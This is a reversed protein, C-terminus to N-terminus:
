TSQSCSQLMMKANKLYKQKLSINTFNAKKYVSIAEEYCTRAKELMDQKKYAIGVNYYLHGLEQIEYAKTAFGTKLSGIAQNHVAISNIWDKTVNLCSGYFHLFSACLKSKEKLDVDITMLMTELIEDMLPFYEKIKKTKNQSKLKESVNLVNTGINRLKTLLNANQSLNRSLDYQCKILTLICDTKKEDILTEILKDLNTYIKDFSDKFENTSNHDKILSLVQFAVNFAKDIQKIKILCQIADFLILIKNVPTEDSIIRQFKQLAENYKGNNM